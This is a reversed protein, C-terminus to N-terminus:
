STMQHYPRVVVHPSRPGDGVALRALMDGVGDLSTVAVPIRALRSEGTALAAIAARVAEPSRGRVGQVSLGRRIMHATDVPVAAPSKPSTLIFRGGHGLLEMAPGVVEPAGGTTDVVLDPRESALRPTDDTVAPVAGLAEAISLREADRPLGTVVVREAGGALAAAAVALGHYGPGLVIVTEGSRLRGAGLTWDLANAYPLVWTALEDDLTDPLRHLVANAPLHLYEANGGFLGPAETVPVTGIRRGGGWIDTQPCLRYPGTRCTSCSGCPLYEEIVVRDRQGVDWRRAAAEGVAAVAGVAHHGLVTPGPVGRAQLAVDTGCIGSAAVRLWGTDPDPAPVPLERVECGGSPLAVSARATAPLCPMAEVPDM